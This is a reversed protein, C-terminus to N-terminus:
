RWYGRNFKVMELYNLARRGGAYVIKGPDKGTKEVFADWAIPDTESAPAQCATLEAFQQVAEEYGELVDEEGERIEAALSNINDRLKIKDLYVPKEVRKYSM